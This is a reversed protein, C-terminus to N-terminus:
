AKARKPEQSALYQDGSSIPGENRVAKFLWELLAAPHLPLERSRDFDITDLSRRRRMRHVTELTANRKLEFPVVFVWEEITVQIVEAQQEVEADNICAYDNSAGIMKLFNELLQPTTRAVPRGGRM